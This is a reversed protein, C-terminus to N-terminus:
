AEVAASEPVSTALVLLLKGIVRLGLEGGLADAELLLVAAVVLILHNHHPHGVVTDQAADVHLAVLDEDVAEDVRLALEDGLLLGRPGDLGVLDVNALEPLHEVEVDELLRAAIHAVVGFVVLHVHEELLADKEVVGDVAPTLWLDHM